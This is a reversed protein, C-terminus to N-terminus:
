KEAVSKDNDDELMKRFVEVSIAGGEGTGSHKVDLPADLGCLRSMRESIRLAATVAKVDGRKIKPAIYSYMKRCREIEIRRAQPVKERFDEDFRDLLRMIIQWACGETVGLKQGIELYDKGALRLELAKQERMRAVLYRAAGPNFPRGDKRKRKV